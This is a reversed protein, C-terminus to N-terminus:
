KQSPPVISGLKAASSFLAAGKRRMHVRATFSRSKQKASLSERSCFLAEPIASFPSVIMDFIKIGMDLTRLRPIKLTNARTTNARAGSLACVVVPVM